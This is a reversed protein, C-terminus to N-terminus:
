GNDDGAVLSFQTESRKQAQAIVEHANAIPMVPVQPSLEGTGDDFEGIRFLTYDQPHKNIDGDADLCISMFGRKAEEDTRLMFVRAYAQVAKDYISYANLKVISDKETTRVTEAESSVEVM